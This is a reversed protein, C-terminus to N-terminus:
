AYIEISIEKICLPFHVMKSLRDVFISIATKGKSEPLDIVLNTLIQQWKRALLLIPQLVGAKKRHDLKVLQHVRCSHRYEGVISWM